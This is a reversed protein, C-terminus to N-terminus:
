YRTVKEPRPNVANYLRSVEATNQLNKPDSAFEKIESKLTLLRDIEARMHAISGDIQKTASVLNLMNSNHLQNDDAKAMEDFSLAVDHMAGLSTM